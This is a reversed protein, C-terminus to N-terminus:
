CAALRFRALIESELSPYRTERVLLIESIRIDLASASVLSDPRGHEAVDLTGYRFLSTHAINPVSVARPLALESVIMRRLTQLSGCSATMLVIATDLAKVTNLSLSVPQTSACVQLLGRAWGERNRAWAEDAELGMRWHLLTIVTLHIAPQPVRRLGGVANDLKDQMASIHRLAADTFRYQLHYASCPQGWMPDVRYSLM